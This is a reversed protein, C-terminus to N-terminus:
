HPLRRLRLLWVCLRAAHWQTPPFSYCPSALTLVVTASAASAAAGSCIRVWGAWCRYPTHLDRTVLTVRVGVMPRMGFSKLVQVHSHGGGVLVLDQLWFM